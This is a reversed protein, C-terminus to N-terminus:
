DQKSSCSPSVDATEATNVPRRHQSNHRSPRSALHHHNSQHQHNHQHNKHIRHTRRTLLGHPPLKFPSLIINLLIASEIYLSTNTPSNLTALRFYAGHPHFHDPLALKFLQQLPPPHSLHIAITPPPLYLLLLAISFIDRFTLIKM